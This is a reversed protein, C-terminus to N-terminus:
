HSSKSLVDQRSHVEGADVGSHHPFIQGRIEGDPWLDSHVDVYTNGSRIARLAKEFNGAEIGQASLDLIDAAMITGVIDQGSTCAPKIGDGCLNALVGGPVSFQGFHIHAETANGELDSFSLTYELTNADKLKASFSGKGSTLISPVEQYGTLFAKVNPGKDQNDQAVSLQPFSYAWLTVLGLTTLLKKM